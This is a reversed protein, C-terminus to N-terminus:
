SLLGSIFIWLVVDWFSLCINTCIYIILISQIKYFRYYMFPLHICWVKLECDRFVISKGFTLIEHLTELELIKTASVIVSTAHIWFRAINRIIDHRPWANKRGVQKIPRKDYVLTTEYWLVFIFQIRYQYSLM